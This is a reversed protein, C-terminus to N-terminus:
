RFLAWRDPTSKPFRCAANAKMRESGTETLLVRARDPSIVGLGFHGECVIESDGTYTDWSLLGSQGPSLLHGDETFGILAGPPEDDGLDMAAVEEYSALDWVLNKLPTPGTAVAAFGDNYVHFGSGTIM